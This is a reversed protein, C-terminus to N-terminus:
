KSLWPHLKVSSTSRDGYDYLLEEGENISKLAFMHLHPHGDVEILRTVVNPNNKSHNILQAKRGDDRTADICYTANKYQFYYMFCGVEKKSYQEERKISEKYTILEGSYECLFDGKLRRKTTIIGRGKCQESRVVQLGDSDNRKALSMFYECSKHFCGALIDAQIRDANVVAPEEFTRETAIMAINAVVHIGCDVGNTQQPVQVFKAKLVIQSNSSSIPNVRTLFEAIPKLFFDLKQGM